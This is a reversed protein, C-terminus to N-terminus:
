GTVVFESEWGSKRGGLHGGEIRGVVGKEKFIQVRRDFRSFDIALLGDSGVSYRALALPSILAVNHRHEALNRAYRRLLAYYEESEPRPAIQMHSWHMAFWDTVWLRTAGVVAAYVTLALERQIRV